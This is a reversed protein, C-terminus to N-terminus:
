NKKNSSQQYIQLKIKKRNFKIKQCNIITKKNWEMRIMKKWNRMVIMFM